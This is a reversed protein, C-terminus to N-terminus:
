FTQEYVSRYSCVSLSNLVSCEFSDTTLSSKFEELTCDEIVYGLRLLAQVLTIACVPSPSSCSLDRKSTPSLGIQIFCDVAYDLPTLDLYLTELLAWPAKAFKVCLVCSSHLGIWEQHNFLM